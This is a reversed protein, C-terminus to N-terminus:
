FPEEDEQNEQYAVLADWAARQAQEQTFSTGQAVKVEDGTQPNVRWVEWAWTTGIYGTVYLWFNESWVDDVPAGKSESSEEPWPIWDLGRYQEENAQTAEYALYNAAGMLINGRDKDGSEQEQKAKAVLGQRVQPTHPLPALVLAIAAEELARYAHDAFCHMVYSFNGTVRETKGCVCTCIYSSSNEVEGVHWRHAGIYGTDFPGTTTM